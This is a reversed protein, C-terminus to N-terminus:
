RECPKLGRFVVSDGVRIWQWNDEAYAHAGKVVLNPRLQLPKVVHDLHSNLEDVSEQNILMYSTQDHYSGTDEGKYAKYKKDANRVPKTAYSHPYYILRFVNIKGVLYKSLWEAAEDGADIGGVECSWLQVKENARGEKLKNLDLMLDVKDPASLIFKNGDVKPQILLMKPYTRATIQKNNQAVVFCRDIVNECEFGLVHCDFSARKIPACSKM